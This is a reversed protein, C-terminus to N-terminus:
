MRFIGFRYQIIYYEKEKRATVMLGILKCLVYYQLITTGYYQATTSSLLVPYYYQCYSRGSSNTSKGRERKGRAEGIKAVISCM